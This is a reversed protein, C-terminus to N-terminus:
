KFSKSFRGGLRAAIGITFAGAALLALNAASVLGTLATTVAGIMDAVDTFM